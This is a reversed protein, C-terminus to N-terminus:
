CLRPSHKWSDVCSCRHWRSLHHRSGVTRTPSASRVTVPKAATAWTGTMTRSTVQGRLVRQRPQLTQFTKLFTALSLSRQGALIQVLFACEFPQPWSHTWSFAQRAGQHLCHALGPFASACRLRAPQNWSAVDNTLSHAPGQGRFTPASISGGVFCSRAFRRRDGGDRNVPGKHSTPTSRNLLNARAPLALLFTLLL